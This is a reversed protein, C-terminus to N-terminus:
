VFSNEFMNRDAKSHVSVGNYDLDDGPIEDDNEDLSMLSENNKVRSTIIAMQRLKKLSEIREKFGVSKERQETTIILDIYEPTSFPNPRLAIEDLRKICQTVMEVRELVIKNNEEVDKELIEVLEKATLKKKRESEYKQKITGSSTVQKEKVYEWRYSQNSHMNWICKNPCIKCTRTEEPMSRDMADCNVKREDNPIQCPNHCTVYCKNCNTLYQGAPIDVKKPRTVEVEFHVNENAEIQAQSNAIVMKTKRMEEMKTLGIKILPQLGDVTAELRKREDLVQKTLVLSQTKKTTLVSFFRKFNEIGMRWFFHDFSTNEDNSAESETPGNFCFFSSNNFKHHVPDGTQPDKPYPLDTGAIAKLV